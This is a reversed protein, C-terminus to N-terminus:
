FSVKVAFFTKNLKKIIRDDIFGITYSYDLKLCEKLM